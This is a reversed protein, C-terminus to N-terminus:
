RGSEARFAVPGSLDNKREIHHYIDAFRKGFLADYILIRFADDQLRTHATSPIKGGNADFRKNGLFIPYESHVIDLFRYYAPIEIEAERSILLPLYVMSVISDTKQLLPFNAFWLSTTTYRLLPNKNMISDYGTEKYVHTFGPLHDGFFILLIPRKAKKIYDIVIGLSRDADILGQLYSNYELDASSSLGTQVPCDLASYRKYCYHGHNQMSLAFIFRPVTDESSYRVIYKALEEDAVYTGKIAPKDMSEVSIFEDFGLHRYVNFRNWFWKKFSHIATTRYGNEKFVRVLSPIPRNIFQNYAISGVPLFGHLMGTLLDFEAICTNGGFVPSVLRIRRFRKGKSNFFRLPACPHRISKIQSIDWFSENVYIIVNPPTKFRRIEARSLPIEVTTSDIFFIREIASKGYNSPKNVRLSEINLLFAYLVGNKRFNSLQDWSENVIKQKKNILNVIYHFRTISLYLGACLLVGLTIRFLFPMSFRPLRNRLLFTVVALVCLGMCGALVQTAYIRAILLAQKFFLLDAPLLPQLLIRMKQMDAISFTLCFIVVASLAPFVSNILVYFCLFLFCIILLNVRYPGKYIKVWQKVAEADLLHLYQMVVPLLALIVAVSLLPIIKKLYRSVNYDYSFIAQILRRIIM